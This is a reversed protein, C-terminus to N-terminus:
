EVRRRFDDKWKHKDPVYITIIIVTREEHNISFVIHIPRNAKTFGLILCSPYPRDKPYEEVVSAGESIEKIEDFTINREFMRSLAHIRYIRKYEKFYKIWDM